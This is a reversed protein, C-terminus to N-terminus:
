MCAIARAAALHESYISLDLCIRCVRRFIEPQVVGGVGGGGAREDSASACEEWRSM